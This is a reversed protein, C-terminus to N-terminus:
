LEHTVCQSNRKLSKETLKCFQPKKNITNPEESLSSTEDKRGLSVKHGAALRACPLTVRRPESKMRFKVSNVETRIQM